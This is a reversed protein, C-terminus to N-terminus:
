TEEEEKKSLSQIPQDETSLEVLMGRLVVEV